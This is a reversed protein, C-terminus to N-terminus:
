PKTIKVRYFRKPDPLGTETLTRETGNDSPPGVVAPPWSGGLDMNTLVEYTRGAVVPSFIIKTNGSSTDVRQEFRSTKDNPVLGAVFEFQNNHGDGDPDANDAANGTNAITNFHQYRWDEVATVGSGNLTISYTPANVDNSAISLTATRLGVADPSFRITFPVSDSPGAIPGAAPASVISFQSAHTGTITPASFTLNGTGINKLAFPYDRSTTAAVPAVATMGGPAINAGPSPAVALTPIPYTAIKSVVASSGNYRGGTSTGLARIYCNAPLPNAFSTQWGEANRVGVGLQIWFSGDFSYEFTAASIEPASGGRKWVVTTSSPTLIQSIAPDNNLRAIKQRNVVMSNKEFGAFAGAILIKGNELISISDVQYSAGYIKADFSPDVTGDANLRAIGKRDLTTTVNNTTSSVQSFNGGILIKGDAQVAICQVYPNAAGHTIVPKFNTDHLGNSALRALARQTVTNSAVETITELTTFVGGILMQGNKLLVSTNVLQNIRPPNFTADVGGYPGVRDFYRNGVPTTLFFFSGSLHIKLDPQVLTSLVEGSPYSTFTPELDGNPKMMYHGLATALIYSNGHKAISNVLNTTDPVFSVDAFGDNFLRAVYTRFKLTQATHTNVRDFTGVYVLDGNNEVLVNNTSANAAVQASFRPDFFPDLSGDTELRLGHLRSIVPTNIGYNVSTFDGALVIKGDAQPVASRVQSGVAPLINLTNFANDSTDLDGAAGLWATSAGFAATFLTLKSLTSM